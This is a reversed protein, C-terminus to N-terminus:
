GHLLGYAILGQALVYTIWVLYPFAPQLRGQRVPRFRDAALLSDSLIFLAVGTQIVPGNPATGLGFASLGMAAIALSYVAVPLRFVGLGKYIYCYFGIAYAVLVLALPWANLVGQLGAGIGSFLPIYALHALLFAAMGALFSRDNEQALFMDGLASFALAAILLWPGGNVAAIIALAAVTLTKSATRLLGAPQPLHWVGYMVASLGFLITLAATM